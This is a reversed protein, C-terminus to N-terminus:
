SATDPAMFPSILRDSVSPPKRMALGSSSVEFEGEGGGTAGDSLEEDKASRGGSDECEDDLVTVALGREFEARGSDEEGGIPLECPM